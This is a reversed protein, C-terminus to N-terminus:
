PEAAAAASSSSSFYQLVLKSEGGRGEGDSVRERERERDRKVMIERTTEAGVAGTPERNIDNATLSLCVSLCDLLIILHLSM